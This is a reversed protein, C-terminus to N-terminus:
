EGIQHLHGLKEIGAVAIALRSRERRFGAASKIPPHLPEACSISLFISIKLM